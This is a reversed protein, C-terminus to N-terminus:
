KGVKLQKFYAKIDKESYLSAVMANSILGNISISKAASLKKLTTREEPTIRVTISLKKGKYKHHLIEKIGQDNVLKDMSPQALSKIIQRIVKSNSISKNLQESKMSKVEEFLKPNVRLCIRESKNTNTNNM